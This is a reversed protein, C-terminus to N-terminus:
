NIKYLYYWTDNVKQEREQGDYSALSHGRGDYKCDQKFKEDDFYTRYSQPIEPLVCEDIYNDLYKDWENDAENDTYVRYTQNYDNEDYEEIELEEYNDDLWEDFPLYEGDGEKENQDVYEQWEDELEKETKDTAYIKISTGDDILVYDENEEQMIALKKEIEETMQNKEM